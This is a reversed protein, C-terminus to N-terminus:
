AKQCGHAFARSPRKEDSYADIAEQYVSALTQDSRYDVFAVIRAANRRSECVTRHPKEHIDLAARLCPTAADPLETRCSTPDTHAAWTTTRDKASSKYANLAKQLPGHGFATYAGM